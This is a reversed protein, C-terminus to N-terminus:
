AAACSRLGRQRRRSRYASELRSFALYARDPSAEILREWRRDRRRRRGPPAPRRRSEPAGARERTSSSRRTSGGRRKPTTRRKLAAPRDRERPVRPDRTVRRGPRWRRRRLAALQQRTAYADAWQHQEEYLKELNSLAYRNEPDLRLVETFAEIARDVFGGSSTTSASASCCTPTSSSGCTRGSCCAQHEQIARGVQGKERYLNGLILHIELPDGAAQAAKALEDIAQDIQNAVLFNLGLMYHPSERARRRDIWRRGPAQLAGLGQRRRPRGAAGGPRRAPRRLDGDRMPSTSRSLVDDWRGQARLVLEILERAAGRGGGARASGTCASGCRPARTPRRRRSARRARLVPLDLLDDGMYAVARRELATDACSRTTPRWSTRRARRRRHPHRAARRSARDRGRPRASLLGVTLGARQAWVIGAGDRIHFAKSETGDAHMLVDGDTLVGDVDFLLLRIRRPRPRPRSM